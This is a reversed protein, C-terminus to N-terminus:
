ALDWREATVQAIKLTSVSPSSIDSSESTIKFTEGDSLRKIVDGKELTVNQNFTIRYTKSEKLAEAITALTSNEIVVAADFTAGEAWSTILGGEGDPEKIKQMYVCPTMMTDILSM